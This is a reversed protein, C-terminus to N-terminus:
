SRMRLADPHERAMEAELLKRLLAVQERRLSALDRTEYPDSALDFLQFEVVEKGSQRALLKWKGHRLALRDAPGEWGRRGRWFLTREAALARGTLAPWLNRGEWRLDGPASYGGLVALTPLWDLISAVGEFAGPRVTGPQNVFAPVRIGGEYLETQWGRLPRNDGLVSCRPHPSGYLEDGYTAWHEQGGNDSSFVILTSRRQGTRELAAVVKGLGDDM